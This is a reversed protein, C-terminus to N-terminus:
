TTPTVSKTPATAVTPESKAPSPTPIGKLGLFNFDNECMKAQEAALNALENEDGAICIIRKEVNVMKLKTGNSGYVDFQNHPDYDNSPDFTTKPMTSVGLYYKGTPLHTVKYVYM